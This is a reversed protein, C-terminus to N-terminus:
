VKPFCAQRGLRALGRLDGNGYTEVNFLADSFMIQTRDTTHGLGVVHGLEHLVVASAQGRNPTAQVSPQQNDLVVQGTVYVLRDDPAYVAQASGAGVVSGALEPFTREDAWGVLVPAWRAKSYRRPQYPNRDKNPRETSPGDYIFRLGTATSVKAVAARIMTMGDSPAGDLNVVYHIPRCPDFAVPTTGDRQYQAVEFGGSGNPVAAPGGLPRTAEETSAPPVTNSLQTAPNTSGGSSSGGSFAKPLLWVAAVLIVLVGV